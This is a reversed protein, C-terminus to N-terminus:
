RRAAQRNSRRETNLRTVRPQPVRRGRQEDVGLQPYFLRYDFM